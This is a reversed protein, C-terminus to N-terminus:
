RHSPFPVPHETDVQQDRLYIQSQSLSHSWTTLIQAGTYTVSWNLLKCFFSVGGVVFLPSYPLGVAESWCDRPGLRPATESSRTLYRSACQLIGRIATDPWPRLHVINTQTQGQQIVLQVTYLNHTDPWRPTETGWQQHLWTTVALELSKWRVQSQMRPYSGWSLRKQNSRVDPM